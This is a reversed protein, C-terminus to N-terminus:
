FMSGEFRSNSLSDIWNLNSIEIKQNAICHKIPSNILYFKKGYSFTHDDHIKRHDKIVCIDDLNAYRFLPTFESATQKSEVQIKSLWFQPIFV